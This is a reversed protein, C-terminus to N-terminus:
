SIEMQKEARKTHAALQKQTKACTSIIKGSRVRKPAVSTHCKGGEAGQKKFNQNTKLSLGM